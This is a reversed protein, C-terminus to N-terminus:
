DGVPRLTVPEPRAAEEAEAAAPPNEAAALDASIAQYTAMGVPWAVVVLAIEEAYKGAIGGLHWGHKDAVPVLAGALRQVTADDYVKVLSPFMPAAMSVAFSIVGAVQAPDNIPAPPPPEAEEVQVAAAQGSATMVEEDAAAIEARLQQVEDM